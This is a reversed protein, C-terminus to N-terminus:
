KKNDDKDRQIQDIQQNDIHAKTDDTFYYGNIAECTIRIKYSNGKIFPQDENLSQNNKFWTIKTVAIMDKGDIINQSQNGVTNIKVALDRTDIANEVYSADFVPRKIHNVSFSGIAKDNNAAHGIVPMSTFIMVFSLVLALIRKIGKM